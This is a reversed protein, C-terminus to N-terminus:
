KMISLKLMRDDGAGPRGRGDTNNTIIYLDSEQVWVDRIRGEGQLVPELEASELDYRLLVEGRLAAVYLYTDAAAIGSPAIATQGTHYLPPQLGSQIDDGIVLPWGYNAGQEIRNIEDHGGPSGSPGHEASYLQGNSDWTLGQPNRHGYSYIYSGPIPNDSPVEGALTMRLIKGGLSDLEQAQEEENFDGTTAYLHGDPGIALRGGNHIYSGPIGELLVHSEDWRGDEERIMVIRNFVGGEAEYTHYVYAEKSDAFDPALVLGLLGGEGQAAVPRALQVQQRVQSDQTIQVITGPRETVYYTEGASAIAWPIRLENAWVEYVTQEDERSPPKDGGPQEQGTCGVAILILALVIMQMSVQERRM